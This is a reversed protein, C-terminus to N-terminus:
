GKRKKLAKKAMNKVKEESKDPEEAAPTQDSTDHEVDLEVENDNVSKVIPLDKVADEIWKDTVFYMPELSKKLAKIGVRAINSAHMTTLLTILQSKIDATGDELFIESAKM